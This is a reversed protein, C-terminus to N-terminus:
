EESPVVQEFNPIRSTLAEDPADFPIARVGQPISVRSLHVAKNCHRCWMDLYGKRTNGDGVYQFDVTENGCEPCPLVQAVPLAHIKKYLNLWDQFM